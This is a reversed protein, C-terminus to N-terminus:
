NRKKLIPNKINLENINSWKILWKKWWRWWWCKLRFRWKIRRESKVVIKEEYKIGQLNKREKKRRWMRIIKNIKKIMKKDIMM